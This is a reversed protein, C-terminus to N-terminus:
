LEKVLPGGKFGTVHTWTKGARVSWVTSQSVKYKRAAERQTESGRFIELVAQETLVALHHHEGYQM